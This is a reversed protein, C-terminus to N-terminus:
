SENAMPLFKSVCYKQADRPKIERLLSGTKPEYFRIFGDLDVAVIQQGDPLFRAQMVWSTHEMKVGGSAKLQLTQASANLLLSQFVLASLFIRTKFNM